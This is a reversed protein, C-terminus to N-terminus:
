ARQSKISAIQRAFKATASRHRRPANRVGLKAVAGPERADSSERLTQANIERAEPLRGRDILLQANEAFNRAAGLPQNFEHSLAASMQGLAALKGAQVLDAQTARLREETPDVVLGEGAPAFELGAVEVFGWLGSSAVERAYLEISKGQSLFTIKYLVPRSTM